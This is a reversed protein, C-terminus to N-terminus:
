GISAGDAALRFDYVKHWQQDHENYRRLEGNVAEVRVLAPQYAALSRYYRAETETWQRRGPYAAQFLRYGHRNFHEQDGFPFYYGKISLGVHKARQKVDRFTQPKESTFLAYVHNNETRFLTCFSAEGTEIDDFLVEAIPMAVHFAERCLRVTEQIRLSDYDRDSM